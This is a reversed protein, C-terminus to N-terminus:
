EGQKGVDGEGREFQILNLNYLCCLKVDGFCLFTLLIIVICIYFFYMICLVFVLCM